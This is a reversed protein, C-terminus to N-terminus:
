PELAPACEDGHRVERRDERLHEQRLDLLRDQRKRLRPDRASPDRARIPRLGESVYGPERDALQNVRHMVGLTLPKRCVPCINNYRASDEPSLSVSCNRHGDFHYKGEEPYFEITYKIRKAKISDIINSYSVDKAELDLVTAERGLKPLSHADSGSLLRM